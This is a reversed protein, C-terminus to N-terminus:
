SLAPFKDALLIVFIVVLVSTLLPKVALWVVDDDVTRNFRRV